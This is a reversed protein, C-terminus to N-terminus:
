QTYTIVPCPPAAAGAVLLGPLAAPLAEFRSVPACLADLRPDDLLDLALALREAHTRRGRMAPAVAGVQTSLLTLRRAHFAEGLPLAVSRDGHWSAEVIRAEFGARDLALQLGAASASAHIILEQGAPAEVPHAFRAGLAEALGARGPDLDVVTVALGPIRALLAAALLGVVGAGIVLAREGALPRADWLINLATEMNAALVARHDPVGEPVPLCMAAPALFRDQHPHLVFVRRGALGPPGDEVVGMAAYGYKVPYPFDGTMLPARMAAHQSVPVRGELVLRETGRSLGSARTRVLAQDAARPPLAEERLEALGPATIWLARAMVPARREGASGDALSM